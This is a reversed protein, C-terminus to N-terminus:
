SRKKKAAKKAGKKPAPKKRAVTKRTAGAKKKTSAKKAAKKRTTRKGGRVLGAEPLQAVLSPHALLRYSEEVWRELMRGPPVEDHPLIVTTWGHMGPKFNDPREKQLAVADDASEGLKVMVRYVDPKMGVYAFAKKRARFARNVCSTGEETEPLSMAFKRLAVVPASEVPETKKKAM